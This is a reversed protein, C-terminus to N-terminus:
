GMKWGLASLPIAPGLAFDRADVAECGRVFGCDLWRANPLGILKLSTFGSDSILFFFKTLDFAMLFSLSFLLGSGDDFCSKSCDVDVELEVGLDVGEWGGLVLSLM